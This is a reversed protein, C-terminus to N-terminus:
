GGIYWETSYNGYGSSDRPYMNTNNNFWVKQRPSGETVLTPNSMMNEYNCIVSSVDQSQLSRNISAIYHPLISRPEFIQLNGFVMEDIDLQRFVRWEIGHTAALKFKNDTDLYKVVALTYYEAEIICPVEKNKYYDDVAKRGGGIFDYPIDPIYPLGTFYNIQYKKKFDIFSTLLYELTNMQKDEVTSADLLYTYLYKQGTQDQYILSCIYTFYGEDDALKFFVYKGIAQVWIVDDSSLQLITASLKTLGNNNIDADSVIQVNVPEKDVSIYKQLIADIEDEYPGDFDLGIPSILSSAMCFNNSQQFPIYTLNGNPAPYYCFNGINADPYISVGNYQFFPEYCGTKYFGSKKMIDESVMDVWQIDPGMIGAFNAYYNRYRIDESYIGPRIPVGNYKMHGLQILGVYYQQGNFSFQALAPDFFVRVTAPKVRTDFGIYFPGLQSCLGKMGLTDPVTQGVYYGNLRIMGDQEIPTLVMSILRREKIQKLFFLLYCQKLAKHLYTDM